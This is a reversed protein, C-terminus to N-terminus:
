YLLIFNLVIPHVLILLVCVASIAYSSDQGLGASGVNKHFTYYRNPVGSYIVQQYVSLAIGVWTGLGPPVALEVYRYPKRIV